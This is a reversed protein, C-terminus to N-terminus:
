KKKRPEYFEPEWESKELCWVEYVGGKKMQVLGVPFTIAYGKNGYYVGAAEPAVRIKKDWLITNFEHTRLWNCVVDPDLSGSGEWAQKLMLVNDYATYINFSVYGVESMMREYAAKQEPTAKKSAFDYLAFMTNVGAAREPGAIQLLDRLIVGGLVMMTGRYGMDYAQKVLVPFDTGATGCDIYAPKKSLVRTLVPTFDKTGLEWFQDFVLDLNYKECWHRVYSTGAWGGENDPNLIAIKTGAGFTKSIYRYVALSYEYNSVNGRFNYKTGKAIERAWGSDIGIVKAKERIEKIALGTGSGWNMIVNAKYQEILKHACSVAETTDQKDDMSIYEIAYRTDGVKVGGAKNVDDVAIKAGKLAPVGWGAGQGSMPATAGIVIKGGKEQSLALETGGSIVSVILIVAVGLVVKILTRKTLM